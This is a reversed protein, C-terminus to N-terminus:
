TYVMQEKQELRSIKSRQSSSVSMTRSALCRQFSPNGTSRPGSIHAINHDQGAQRGSYCNRFVNTGVIMDYRVGSLGVLAIILRHKDLNALKNLAPLSPHGGDHPKIEDVILNWLPKPIPWKKATKQLAGILGGANDRIPFQVQGTVDNEAGIAAAFAHDLAARLNCVADGVILSVGRDLPKTKVKILTDGPHSDQDIVVEYTKPPIDAIAAKLDNVHHKAREIKLIASEYKESM